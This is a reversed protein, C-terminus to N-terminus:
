RYSCPNKKYNNMIKNANKYNSMIILTKQLKEINYRDNQLRGYSSLIALTKKYNCRFISNNTCNSMNICTKLNNIIIFTNKCYSM